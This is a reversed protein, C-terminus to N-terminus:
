NLLKKKQEQFEEESLIGSDRLQALKVLEDAVGTKLKRDEIKQPTPITVTQQNSNDIIVSILDKIANAEKIRDSYTKKSTEDKTNFSEGKLNIPLNVSPTITSRVLIKINMSQVKKNQSTDGSLGGVIVGAGGLLAGGVLAGGVTRKMSKSFLTNGDEEYTVNIIDSYNLIKHSPILPSIIVLVKFFDDMFFVYSGIRKKTVFSKEGRKKSIYDKNIYNFSKVSVNNFISIYGYKEEFLIFTPTIPTISPTEKVDKRLSSVHLQAPIDNNIVENINCNNNGYEIVKYNVNEKNQVLLANRREIDIACYNDSMNEILHKKFKDVYYKDVGETSISAILVKEKNNDFYIGIRDNGINDSLDLETEKSELEEKLGLRKKKNAESISASIISAVIIVVLLVGMIAWFTGDFLFDVSGGAIFGYFALILTMILSEKKFLSKM